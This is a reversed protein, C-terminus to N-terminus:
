GWVLKKHQGVERISHLKSLPFNIADARSLPPFQRSSKLDSIHVDGDGHAYHVVVDYIFLSSLIFM